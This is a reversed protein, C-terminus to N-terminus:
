KNLVELAGLLIDLTEVFIVVNDAFDLHSINVNGFSAGCSSRESMRGLIWVMCTSFLTPALVCGSHVGTVFPFLDSIIDGCRVASETGSYLESMLNILKPLMGRLGHIRWLADQNVSDFAKYLDVYAVLLGQYFERRCEPLVRLALIHDNTSKKPTFSSQEPHQHEPLNHRVRHLIIGAFVKLPVSLLM